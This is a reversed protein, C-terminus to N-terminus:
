PNKPPRGPGRRAPEDVPTVTVDDLDERRKLTRFYAIKEADREDDLLFTVTNGSNNKVAVHVAAM